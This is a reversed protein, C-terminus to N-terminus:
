YSGTTLRYRSTLFQVVTKLGLIIRADLHIPTSKGVRRRLFVSLPLNLFTAPQLSVQLRDKLRNM